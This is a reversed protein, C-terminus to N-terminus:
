PYRYPRDQKTSRGRLRAALKWGDRIIQRTSKPLGARTTTRAKAAADVPAPSATATDACPRAVAALGAGAAAIGRRKPVRIAARGAEHEVVRGGLFEVVDTISATIDRLPVDDEAYRIMESM